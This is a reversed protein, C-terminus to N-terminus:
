YTAFIGERIRDINEQLRKQVEPDKEEIIQKKIINIQKTWDKRKWDAQERMDYIYAKGLLFVLLREWVTLENYKGTLGFAKEIENIPRILRLWADIQADVKGLLIEKQEWPYASIPKGYFFDYNTVSEIYQKPLPNFMDWFLKNMHGIQNIDALPSWWQLKIFMAKGTEKDTGVYVPVSEQLWDPLAAKNVETEWWAYSEIANIADWVKAIKWPEKILMELQLPLNNKTWTYFPMMAKAYNREFETLDSYDFHFKRIDKVASKFNYGNDMRDFFLILRNFEDWWEGVKAAWKVAKEIPRWLMTAVDLDADNTFVDVKLAGYNNLAKRLEVNSITDGTLEYWLQRLETAMEKNLKTVWKSNTMMNRIKSWSLPTVFKTTELAIKASNVWALYNQFMWWIVNRIHFAPNVITATIKFLNTIAHVLHMIPWRKTPNMMSHIYREILDATEPDFKMSNIWKIPVPLKLHRANDAWSQLQMVWKIFESVQKLQWVKQAQKNLVKGFRQDFVKGQMWELEAPWHKMIAAEAEDTTTKLVKFIRDEKKLVANALEKRYDIAEAEKLIRDRWAKYEEASITWAINKEDLAKSRIAIDDAKKKLWRLVEKISDDSKRVFEWISEDYNAYESLKVVQEKGDIIIKLWDANPNRSWRAVDVAVRRQWDLWEWFAKKAEPSLIRVADLYDVESWSIEDFHARLWKNLEDMQKAAPMLIDPINKMNGNSVDWWLKSAIDDEKDVVYKGLLSPDKAAKVTDHVGDVIDNMNKIAWAVVVDKSHRAALNADAVTDAVKAWYRLANVTDPAVLALTDFAKGVAGGMRSATKLATTAKEVAKAGSIITKGWFTLLAQEWKNFRTIIDEALWWTKQALKGAKTVAWVWLYTTPDLFVDWVFWAAHQIVKGLTSDAEWFANQIVDTYSLRDKIWYDKPKDWQMKDVFNNVAAAGAYQWTSITDLTKEWLPRNDYAESATKDAKAKLEDNINFAM